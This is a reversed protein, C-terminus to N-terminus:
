RRGGLIGSLWAETLDEVTGYDEESMGIYPRAPIDGWPSATTFRRGRRDTGSTVGLSGTAAGGQHVAAYIMNTGVLVSNATPFHNISALLNGSDRLTPGGERQARKSPIWPTGDPAVNTVAIREIAGNVMQRGIADMLPTLDGMSAVAEALISQVRQDDVSVQM